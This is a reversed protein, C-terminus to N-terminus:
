VKLALVLKAEGDRFPRSQVYRKGSIEKSLRIKVNILNFGAMGYGGVVGGDEEAHAVVVEMDNPMTALIAKLEKVTM